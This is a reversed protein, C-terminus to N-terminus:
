IAMGVLLMHSHLKRLNTCLESLTYNDLFDFIKLEIHMGLDLSDAYTSTNNQNQISFKPLKTTFITGDLAYKLSPTYKTISTSLNKKSFLNPHSISIYFDTSGEETYINYFLNKEVEIAGLGFFLHVADQLDPLQEKLSTERLINNWFHHLDNKNKTRYHTLSNFVESAIINPSIPNLEPSNNAYELHKIYSHMRKYALQPSVPKQIYDEAGAVLTKNNKLKQIPV